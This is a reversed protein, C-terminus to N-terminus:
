RNMKQLGLSSGCDLTGPTEQQPCWPRRAPILVQLAGLNRLEAEVSVLHSYNELMVDRYLTRQKPDIKQWEEQTFEVTVDKFSVSAQSASM